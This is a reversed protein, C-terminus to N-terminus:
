VRQRVCCLAGQHWRAFGKRWNGGLSRKFKCLKPSCRAFWVRLHVIALRLLCLPSM